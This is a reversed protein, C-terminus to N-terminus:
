ETTYEVWYNEWTWDWSAYVWHGDGLNWYNMEMDDDWDYDEGHRSVLAEMVLDEIDEDEQTLYVISWELLIDDGFDLEMSDVYYNDDPTLTVSDGDDSSVSFGQGSLHEIAEAKTMGYSLDFLGTQASLSLAFLLLLLILLTKNM